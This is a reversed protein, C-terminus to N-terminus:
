QGAHLRALLVLLVMENLRRCEPCRTTPDNDRIDASEPLSCDCHECTMVRAEFTEVDPLSWKDNARKPNSYHQAM